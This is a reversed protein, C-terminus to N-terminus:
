SQERHIDFTTTEPPTEFAGEAAALGPTLTEDRFREWSAKTDWLAIVFWGDGTPGAVHFTQGEPLSAGDDPHVVALTAEYQEATGGKFYNSIGYGAM